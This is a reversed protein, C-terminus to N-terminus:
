RPRDTSRSFVHGFGFTREGNPNRINGCSKFLNQLMHSWDQSEMNEFLNFSQVNGFVIQSDKLRNSIQKSHLSASESEKQYKKRFIIIMFKIGNALFHHFNSEVLDFKQSQSQHIGFSCKTSPRFYKTAHWLDIEFRFKNYLITSM